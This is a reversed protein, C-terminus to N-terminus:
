KDIGGSLNWRSIDIGLNNKLRDLDPKLHNLIYEKQQDSLHISSIKRDIMKKKVWSPIKKQLPWRMPLKQRLNFVWEQYSIDSSANKEKQLDVEIAPLKLFDFIVNVTKQPNSVLDEFFVINITEAPFRQYFESIQRYYETVHLAHRSIKLENKRGKKFLNQKRKYIEMFQIHSRIREIPNRVVYIFSFSASKVSSIREAANPLEPIKTYNVSGELAYQHKETNFEPWLSRYYDMGKQWSEHGNTDAFFCPEKQLCPEIEPHQALLEYLFTTGAKMAGIILLFNKLKDPM